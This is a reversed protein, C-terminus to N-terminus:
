KLRFYIIKWVGKWVQGRFDTDWKLGLSAEAEVICWKFRDSRGQYMDFYCSFYIFMKRTLIM